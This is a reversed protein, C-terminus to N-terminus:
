LLNKLSRKDSGPEKTSIRAREFSAPNNYWMMLKIIGKLAEAEDKSRLRGDPAVNPCMMPGWWERGFNRCIDPRDHYVACSNDEKLFVCARDPTDTAVVTNTGWPTNVFFEERVPKQFYKRHSTIFETNMPFYECCWSCKLCPWQTSKTDGPPITDM